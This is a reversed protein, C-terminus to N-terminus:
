ASNEHLVFTRSRSDASMSRHILDKVVIPMTDGVCDTIPECLEVPYYTNDLYARLGHRESLCLEFKRRAPFPALLNFEYGYCLFSGDGKSTCKKRVSLLREVDVDKPPPRYLIEPKQAPVAFKLNFGEIFGDIFENAAEVTKIGYFRFIFPLRGQLTQWLREIRGKAQPSLAIIIDIKFQRCAEQWQTEKKRIGELQEEITIKETSKDIAFFCSSRDIYVARPLGGHKRYINYLTQDYGLKCENACFHLAAIKHTADDIAGHATIKEGTMFWDYPSADMQVLEGEREREKRPLHAKKVRVTERAKPSIIGNNKLIRCVTTYAAPIHAVEELQDRYGAFPSGNWKELYFNVIFEHDYKKKNSARGTNGHIFCAIGYTKYKNKLRCVSQPTIGIRRACDRISIKGAVCLPIYKMKLQQVRLNM